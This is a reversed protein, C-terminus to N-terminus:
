QVIASRVDTQAFDNGIYLLPLDRDVALAYAFCDFINLKARHIGKGWTAYADRMRLCDHETVAAITPRLAALISGISQGGKSLGVTMCEGLTAASMLIEDAAAAAAACKEALPEGLAM